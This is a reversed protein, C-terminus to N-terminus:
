CCRPSIPVGLRGDSARLDSPEMESPKELTDLQPCSRKGLPHVRDLDPAHRDRFIALRTHSAQVIPEYARLRPQLPWAARMRPVHCTQLHPFCEHTTYFSRCWSAMEDRVVSRNGVIRFTRSNPKGHGRPANSIRWESPRPVCQSRADSGPRIDGGWGQDGSHQVPVMLASSIVNSNNDKAIPLLVNREILEADRRNAVQSAGDLESGDSSLLPGEVELRYTM